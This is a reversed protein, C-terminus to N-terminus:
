RRQLRGDRGERGLVSWGMDSRTEMLTEAGWWVSKIGDVAVLTATPPVPDLANWITLTVGIEAVNEFPWFASSRWGVHPCNDPSSLGTADTGFAFWLIGKVRACQLVMKLDDKDGVGMSGWNQPRAILLM